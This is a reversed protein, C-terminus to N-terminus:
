LEGSMKTDDWADAKPWEKVAMKSGLKVGAEPNSSIVIKIM